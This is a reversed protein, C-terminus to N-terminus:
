NEKKSKSTTLKGIAIGDILGELKNIFIERDIEAMKPPEQNLRKILQMEKDTM